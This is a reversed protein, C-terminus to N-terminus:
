YAVVLNVRGHAALRSGRRPSQSVVRGARRQLRVNHVRGVACGAKRIATKAKALRRGVVSPV